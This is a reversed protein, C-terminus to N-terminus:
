TRWSRFCAFRRICDAGITAYGAWYFVCHTDDDDLSFGGLFGPLHWAGPKSKPEQDAATTAAKRTVVSGGSAKTLFGLGEEGHSFGPFSMAAGRLAPVRGEESKAVESLAVAAVACVESLVVAVAAILALTARRLDARGLFVSGAMKVGVEERSDVLGESQGRAGV